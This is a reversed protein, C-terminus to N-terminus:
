FDIDNQQTPDLRRYGYPLSRRTAIDLVRKDFVLGYQKVREVLRLRKTTVNRDFHYPNVVPLTRKHSLPQDLENLINAKMTEFNLVNAGRVNLTFGRVKCEVKGRRTRYGYNKAGGSVFEEIVDGELEDTLEGLYDGNPLRPFGPTWKYIVSDTDYYLVQEQLTQLYSYLKLRAWCTTFAAVFINTKNSPLIDDEVHSYIVELLDDTCIRLTSLELSPDFLYQYLQGPSQVAQTKPKNKVSM